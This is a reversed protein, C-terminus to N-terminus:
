PCLQTPLMCVVPGGCSRPVAPPRCIPPPPVITPGQDAIGCSTEEGLTLNLTQCGNSVSKMPVKGTVTQKLDYAGPSLTATQSNFVCPKCQAGFTGTVLTQAGNSVTLSDPGGTFSGTVVVRVQLRPNYPGPASTGGHSACVLSNPNCLWLTLPVSPVTNIGSGFFGVQNVASASWNRIDLLANDSNIPNGAEWNQTGNQVTIYPLSGNPLGVLPPMTGFGSGAINFSTQSGWNTVTFNSIAPASMDTFNVCAQRRNSWYKTITIGMSLPSGGAGAFIPTFAQSECLDGIENQTAVSIHPPIISIDIPFPDTLAEVMEHFLSGFLANSGCRPNTLVITYIPTGSFPGGGFPWPPTDELGHYHWAAPSGAGTCFNSSFFDSEMSSAPLIVNYVVNSNQLLSPGHDHECQVFGAISTNFPDYFGVSAPAKSPCNPDPLFGGAFSVSTVGYESLSSFYTSDVVAQTVANVMGVKITPNDADWTTDWYLNVFTAAAM